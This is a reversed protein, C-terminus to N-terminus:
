TVFTVQNEIYDAVVVEEVEFLKGAMVKIIIKRYHCVRVLSHDLSEVSCSNISTVLWAFFMTVKEAKTAIVMIARITKEAKAFKDKVIAM